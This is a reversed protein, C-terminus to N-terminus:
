FKLSEVYNAVIQNQDFNTFDNLTVKINKQNFAEKLNTDARVVLYIEEIRLRELEAIVEIVYELKAEKDAYIQYYIEDRYNEPVKIKRKKTITELDNADTYYGSIWFRPAIFCTMFNEKPLGFFINTGLSKKKDQSQALNIDKLIPLDINVPVDIFADIQKDCCATDCREGYYRIDYKTNTIFFTDNNWKYDFTTVGRHTDLTEISKKKQNHFMIQDNNWLASDGKINFIISNASPDDCIIRDHIKQFHWHGDINKKECSSFFVTTFLIILFKKM